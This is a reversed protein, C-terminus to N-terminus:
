LFTLCSLAIAIQGLYYIGHNLICLLKDDQKGGFYMTSLILDSVFILGLGLAILWFSPSLIACTIAYLMVFSLIFSYAASQWKFKGFDLKMLPAIFKIIAVTILAAAGLSALLAWVNFEPLKLVLYVFYFIHGVGFALMGWNLFTDSKEKQVVKFDLLVDGVLGMVLGLIVFISKWNAPSYGFFMVLGLGVFGVSALAKLYLATMGGRLVRVVIFLAALLVCLVGGIIAYIM